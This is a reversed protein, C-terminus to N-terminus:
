TMIFSLFDERDFASFFCYSSNIKGYMITSTLGIKM